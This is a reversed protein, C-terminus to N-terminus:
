LCEVFPFLILNHENRKTITKRANMEEEVGKNNVM